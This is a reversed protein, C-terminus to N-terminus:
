VRSTATAFFSQDAYAGAADFCSIRAQLESASSHSWGVITCYGPRDGYGTLQLHTEAIGATPVRLQYRGVLVPAVSNAGVGLLGNYNTQPAAGPHHWIYGYRNPPAVEGTVSRERHYSIVFGSNAPTSAVPEFCGIPILLDTGNISWRDMVKCRYPQGSTQTATVQVNGAFVGAAGVLPLRVLYEGPPGTPTVSNVGGASNYTDLIAGSYHLYAHSGQGAPLIGSSTTFLVTFLTDAPVGGPGACQLDIFRDAGSSFWNIGTCWRPATSVATLHVAGRKSSALWPMRVRYRGPATRIVSAWDAPHAGKWSGWQRTTDMTTWVAPALANSYAYGWHDATAAQAPRASGFGGGLVGAAVALAMAVVAALARRITAAMLIKM